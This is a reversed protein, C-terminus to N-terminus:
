SAQEKLHAPIRSMELRRRVADPIGGVLSRDHWITLARPNSIGCDTGINNRPDYGGTSTINDVFDVLFQNNFDTRYQEREKIKRDM